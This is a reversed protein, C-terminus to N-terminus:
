GAPEVAEGLDKVRTGVLWAKVSLCILSLLSCCRFCSKFWKLLGPSIRVRM